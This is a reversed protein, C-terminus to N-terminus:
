RRAAGGRADTSTRRAAQIRQQAAGYGLQVYSDTNLRLYPVGKRVDTLTVTLDYTCGSVLAEAVAVASRGALLGAQEDEYAFVGNYIGPEGTNRTRGFGAEMGALTQIELAIHEVVHGMWTGMQVREFLRRSAGGLM